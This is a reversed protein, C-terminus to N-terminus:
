AAKTADDQDAVQALLLQALTKWILRRAVDPYEPEDEVLGDPLLDAFKGVAKQVQARFLKETEKRVHAIARELPKRVLSVNEISLGFSRALEADVDRHGQENGLAAVTAKTLEGVKSEKDKDDASENLDAASEPSPLAKPKASATPLKTEEDVDKSEVDIVDDNVDRDDAQADAVVPNSPKGIVKLAWEITSPASDARELEAMIEDKHEFLQIYQQASRLKFGLKKVVWESWGGKKGKDDQFCDRAESLMSGIDIGIDLSSMKIKKLQSVKARIKNQITSLENTKTKTMPKHKAM